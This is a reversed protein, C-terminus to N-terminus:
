QVTAALAAREANTKRGRKKPAAVEQVMSGETPVAPMGVQYWASALMRMTDLHEHFSKLGEENITETGAVAAKLVDLNDHLLVRWQRTNLSLTKTM